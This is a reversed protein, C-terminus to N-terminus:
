WTPHFTFYMLLFFGFVIFIVLLLILCLCGGIKEFSSALKRPEQQPRTSLPIILSDYSPPQTPNQIPQNPQQYHDYRHHHTTHGLYPPPSQQSTQDHQSINSGNLVVKEMSIDVKKTDSHTTKRGHNAASDATPTKHQAM